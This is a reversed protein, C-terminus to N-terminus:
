LVAKLLTQNVITVITETHQNLFFHDGELYHITCTKTSHNRWGCAQEATVDDSKGLFISIDDAFPIFEGKHKYTEAVKFDSRLMPLLVELLEAHDFFEKPTGGLEIVKQKFEPEPLLHYMEDGDEDICPAGRGSFFVHLPAPLGNKRIKYALEYAIISGMSHGFIAYSRNNLQNSLLAYVDDVAEEISQYLPDYIRKGRGALEVPHLDLHKDIYPRWKNYASAAGGAYPLCFLTIIKM